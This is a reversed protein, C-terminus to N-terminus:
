SSSTFNITGLIARLVKNKKQCLQYFVSASRIYCYWFGWCHLCIGILLGNLFLLLIPCTIKWLLQYFILFKMDKTNSNGSPIHRELHQWTTVTSILRLLYSNPVLMVFLRKITKEVRQEKAVKKKVVKTRKPIPKYDSDNSPALPLSMLLCWKDWESVSGEEEDNM